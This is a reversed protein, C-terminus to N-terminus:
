KSNGTNGQAIAGSIKKDRLVIASDSQVIEQCSISEPNRHRIIADLVIVHVKLTTFICKLVYAHYMFGLLTSLLKVFVSATLQM